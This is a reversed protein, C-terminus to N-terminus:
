HAVCTGDKSYDTIIQLSKFNKLFELNFWIHGNNGSLIGSSLVFLDYNNPSLM